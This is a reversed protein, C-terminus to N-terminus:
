GRAAVRRQLRGAERLLARREEIIGDAFREVVRVWEWRTHLAPDSRRERQYARGYARGFVGKGAASGWRMWWRTGPPLSGIRMMLTTRAFDGEPDGRAANAWDIVVPGQAALLVNGPQFDGHCLADGDPLADLVALAPGRLAHPVAPHTGIRARLVARLAPLASDARVAHLQAHVRGTLAGLELLRWPRRQLEALVDRGVVREMVIGPRGAWSLRARPAPVLPLVSRVAALVTMERDARDHAHPDRYLRLVADHGWAFIEAERGEAIRVPRSMEVFLLDRRAPDAAVSWIPPGAVSGGPVAM